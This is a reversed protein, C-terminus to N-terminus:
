PSPAPQAMLALGGDVGYSSGTVYSADGSCLFRVVAAVEVPSGMRGLAANDIPLDRADVGESNTMRTAIAGPAVSNVTIGHPGLELALTKVLGGLGHKAATYAVASRLPVHEHVSTILVIRGGRGQEALLRAATLAVAATGVLNVDVIRQLAAIETELAPAPENYGASGVVVDLGGLREALDVVVGEASEADALDLRAVHVAAGLKRLATATRQAEPEDRFWTLGLDCGDAALAHAIASGIGGEVGILIARRRAAM